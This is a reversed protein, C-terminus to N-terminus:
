VLKIINRRKEQKLGILANKLLFLLGLVFDKQPNPKGQIINKLGKGIDFSFGVYIRGDVQSQLAYVM